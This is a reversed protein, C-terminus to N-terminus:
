YPKVGEVNGAPAYNCIWIDEHWGQSTTCTAVGCGVQTSKRWVIQTYHGCGDSSMALYCSPDCKDGTMFPGYTYCQVEAAWAGVANQAASNPAKPYSQTAYLNEGRNMGSLEPVSRHVPEDCTAQIGALHDAWEQAYAALEDSWTLEPMSMTTEVMARVANHAATAGVNRGTEGSSAAAADKTAADAAGADVRAADSAADRQRSADVSQADTDGGADDDSAVKADRKGADGKGADRSAPPLDESGSDEGCGISMLAWALFAVRRVNM